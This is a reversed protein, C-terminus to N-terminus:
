RLAVVTARLAQNLRGYLDEIAAGTENAVAMASFVMFGALLCPGLLTSGREDRGFKRLM